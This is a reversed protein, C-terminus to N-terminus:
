RNHWLRAPTQIWQKFAPDEQYPIGNKVHWFLREMGQRDPTFTAALAATEFHHDREVELIVKIIDDTTGDQYYLENKLAPAAITASM